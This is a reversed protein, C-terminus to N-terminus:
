CAGEARAQSEVHLAASCQLPQGSRRLADRSGCKPVHCRGGSIPRIVAMGAEPPLGCESFCCFVGHGDGTARGTARGGAPQRSQCGGARWCIAAAGLCILCAFNCHCPQRRRNCARRSDSSHEQLGKCVARRGLCAGPLRVRQGAAHFDAHHAARRRRSRCRRRLLWRCRALLLRLWCRRQHHLKHRRVLSCVHLLHLLRRSQELHPRICGNRLLLAGHRSSSGSRGQAGWQGCEPPLALRWQAM